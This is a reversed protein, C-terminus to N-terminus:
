PSYLCLCIRVRTMWQREFYQLFNHFGVSEIQESKTKLENFADLIVNEPLLPLCMLKYYMERELENNRILHVLGGIRSANKKIAQCYHFWCARLKCNPYQGSIANRMATEYDTMFSAGELSCINEHIYRFIHEYSTQRKSSMLIYMFPIVHQLYFLLFACLCMLNMYEIITM